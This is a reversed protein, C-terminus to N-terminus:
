GIYDRKSKPDMFRMAGYFLSALCLFVMQHWLGELGSLFLMWGCFLSSGVGICFDWATHTHNKRLIFFAMVCSSYIFVLTHIDWDICQHIFVYLSSKLTLILGLWQLLTTMFLARTPAGSQNYTGFWRPFVGESAASAAIHASITNWTNMAILCILALLGSMAKEGHVGWLNKASAILPSINDQLLHAPTSAMMVATMSLYLLVVFSTGYFLAQPLKKTQTKPVTISELGVFGWLGAIGAGVFAQFPPTNQSNQCLTQLDMSPLSLLTFGILLGVKICLVVAELRGTVLLGRQNFLFSLALALTYLFFRLEVSGHWDFATQLADVGTIVVTMTGVWCSLWYLFAVVFTLFPKKLAQDVYTHPGGPAQIWTSLRGFLLALFLAGIGICFWSILGWLGFPIFRNPLSFIGPGVQTGVVLIVMGWFPFASM